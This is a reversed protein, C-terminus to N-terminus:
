LSSGQSPPPPQARDLSDAASVGDAEPTKINDSLLSLSMLEWESLWAHFM